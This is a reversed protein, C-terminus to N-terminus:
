YGDIQLNGPPFDALALVVISPRLVRVRGSRRVRGYYLLCPVRLFGGVVGFCGAIIDSVSYTGIKNSKLDSVEICVM